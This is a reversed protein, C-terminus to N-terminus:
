RGVPLMPGAFEMRVMSLGPNVPDVTVSFGLKRCMELMRTNESLVMGELLKLGEARAYALLQEMLSWGIGQGKLDSRVIIAYEARTYDPDAVLRSVGLLAGGAFRIGLTWEAQLSSESM